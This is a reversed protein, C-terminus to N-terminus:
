NLMGLLARKATFWQGHHRWRACRAVAPALCGFFVLKSSVNRM